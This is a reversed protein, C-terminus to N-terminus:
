PSATARPTPSPTGCPTFGVAAISGSEAPVIALTGCRPKTIAFIWVGPQRQDETFVWGKAKMGTRFEDTLIKTSKTSTMQVQCTGGVGFGYQPKVDDPIPFGKACDPVKGQVSGTLPDSVSGTARLKPNNTVGFVASGAVIVGLVVIGILGARGKQWGPRVVLPAHPSMRGALVILVAATAIAIWVGYDATLLGEPGPRLRSMLVAGVLSVWGAAEHILSEDVPLGVRVGLRRLAILAVSGAALFLIIPGWSGSAWGSSHIGFGRPGKYWPLFTSAALVASVVAVPLDTVYRDRGRRSSPFPAVAAQEAVVDV